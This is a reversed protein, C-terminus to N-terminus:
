LNDNCSGLRRRDLEKHFKKIKKELLMSDQQHLRNDLPPRIVDEKHTKMGSSIIYRIITGSDPSSGNNSNYANM